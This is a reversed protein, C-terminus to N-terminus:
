LENQKHKIEYKLWIQVFNPLKLGCIYLNAIISQIYFYSFVIFIFNTLLHYVPIPRHLLHNVLEILIPMLAIIVNRSMSSLFNQSILEQRNKFLRWSFGLISDLLVLWILIVSEDTGSGFYNNLNLFWNIFTDVDNM